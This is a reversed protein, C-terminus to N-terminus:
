ACGGNTGKLLLAMLINSSHYSSDAEMVMLFCSHCFEMLETLYAVIMWTSSCPVCCNVPSAEMRLTAFSAHYRRGVLRVHLVWPFGSTKVMATLLNDEDINTFPNVGMIFNMKMTKSALVIACLVPEGTAATFGLITFHCDEFALQIQAQSDPCVLFKEGGINGDNKQSM